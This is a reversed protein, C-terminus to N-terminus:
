GKCAWLVCHLKCLTCQMNHHFSWIAHSVYTFIRPEGSAVQSGTPRGLGISPIKSAYTQPTDPACQALFFSIRDQYAGSGSFTVREWGQSAGSKVRFQGHDEMTGDEQNIYWCYCLISILLSRNGGCPRWSSAWSAMARVVLGHAM